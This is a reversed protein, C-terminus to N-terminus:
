KVSFKSAFDAKIRNTDTFIIVRVSKGRVMKAVALPRKDARM